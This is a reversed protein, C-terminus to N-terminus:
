DGSVRQCLPDLPLQLVITDTISRHTHQTESCVCKNRGCKKGRAVLNCLTTQDRIGTFKRGKNQGRHAKRKEYEAERRARKKAAGSLKIKEGAGNVEGQEQQGESKTTAPNTEREAVDDDVEQQRDQVRPLIFEAKVHAVGNSTSRQGLEGM